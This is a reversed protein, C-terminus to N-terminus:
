GSKFVFLIWGWGGCIVLGTGLTAWGAYTGLFGGFLLDIDKGADGLRAGTALVIYHFAIMFASTGVGLIAIFLMISSIVCWNERLLDISFFGGIAVVHIGFHWMYWTIYMNWLKLHSDRLSKVNENNLSMTTNGKKTEVFISNVIISAWLLVELRTYGIREVFRM